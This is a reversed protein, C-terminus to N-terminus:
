TGGHYIHRFSLMRRLFRTFIRYYYDLKTARDAMKNAPTYTSGAFGARVSMNGDGVSRRTRSETSIPMSLRIGGHHVTSQKM